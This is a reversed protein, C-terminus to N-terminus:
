TPPAAAPYIKKCVNFPSEPVFGLDQLRKRNEQETKINNITATQGPLLQALHENSM